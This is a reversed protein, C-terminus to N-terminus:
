RRKKVAAFIGASVMSLGGLISAIADVGTKPLNGKTEEKANEVKKADEKANDSKKAEEKTNEVKKDEKKQNDKKNNAENAAKEWADQGKKEQDKIMNNEAEGADKM